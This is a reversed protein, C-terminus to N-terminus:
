QADSSFSKHMELVAIPGYSEAQKRGYGLSEYLSQAAPQLESVYMGIRGFGQQAAWQETRQVLLRGVGKRRFQAAVALRRLLATGPENEDGEIAIMAVIEREQSELVSMRRHPKSYYVSARVLDDNLCSDIYRKIAIRLERDADPPVLENQVTIFLARVADNDAPQIARVTLGPPFFNAPQGSASSDIGARADSSDRM